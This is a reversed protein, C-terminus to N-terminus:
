YPEIVLTPYNEKPVNYKSDSHNEDVICVANTAVYELDEDGIKTHDQNIYLRVAICEFDNGFLLKMNDIEEDTYEPYKNKLYKRLDGLTLIKIEENDM